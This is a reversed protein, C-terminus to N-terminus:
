VPLEFSFVAGTPHNDTAQIHGEHDTIIRHVIALGLGTGTKKRSFYPVFLMERDEPNIGPGEDAVSVMARHRKSDYQTKVWIRGKQGMSQIGNDFLNVFV